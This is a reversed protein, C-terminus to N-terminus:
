PIFRPRLADKSAPRGLVTGPYETSRQHAPAIVATVVNAADIAIPALSIAM